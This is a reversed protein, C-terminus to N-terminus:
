SIARVSSDRASWLVSRGPDCRVAGTHQAGLKLTSTQKGSAGLLRPGGVAPGHPGFAKEGMHGWLVWSAQRDGRRKIREKKKKSAHKKNFGAPQSRDRALPRLVRFEGLGGTGAWGRHGGDAELLLCYLGGTRAM